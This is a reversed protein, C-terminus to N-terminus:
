TVDVGFYTMMIVAAIVGLAIIPVEPGLGTQPKVTEIPPIPNRVTQSKYVCDCINKNQNNQSSVCIKNTGRDGLNICLRIGGRQM